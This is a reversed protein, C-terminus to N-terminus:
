SIKWRNRVIELIEDVVKESDKNEINIFIIDKEKRLWIIQKRAYEKTKKIIENKCTTINIEGKLYKLVEEYGIAKISTKSFGFKENIYKVEEVFGREFMREVRDKIKEYLLKRDMILAIKISDFREIMNQFTSFPKNYIYFVELARVIRKKDNKSIKNAYEPDVRKLEEYLSDLGEKNVRELLNKRITDDKEPPDFYLLTRLYLGTGGVIIPMKGKNIIEDIKKLAIEKYLGSSFEENPDIIDILHHPIGEMEDKKIKNTGINMYKYVQFADCSIIEGNIKKALKVGIESKGVGTPGGIYIVKKM